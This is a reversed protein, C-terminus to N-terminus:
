ISTLMVILFGRGSYGTIGVALGVRSKQTPCWTSCGLSGGVVAVMLFDFDLFGIGEQLVCSWQSRLCACYPGDM